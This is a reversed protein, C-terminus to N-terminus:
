LRMGSEREGGCRNREGGGAGTEKEKRREAEQGRKMIKDEADEM